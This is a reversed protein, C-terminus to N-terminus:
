VAPPKLTQAECPRHLCFFGSPFSIREPLISHLSIMLLQHDDIKDLAGFIAGVLTVPPNRNRDDDLHFIDL